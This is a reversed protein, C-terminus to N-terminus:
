IEGAFRTRVFQRPHSRRPRSGAEGPSLRAVKDPAPRVEQAGRSELASKAEAEKLARARDVGSQATASKAGQEPEEVGGSGRQLPKPLGRRRAESASATGAAPSKRKRKSPKACYKEDKARITKTKRASACRPRSARASGVESTPRPRRRSVRKSAPKASSAPRTKKTKSKTTKKSKNRAAMTLSEVRSRGAYASFRARVRELGARISSELMTLPSKTVSVM